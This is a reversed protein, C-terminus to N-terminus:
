WTSFSLRRSPPVERGPNARLGLHGPSGPHKLVHTHTRRPLWLTRVEAGGGSPFTARPSAELGAQPAASGLSGRGSTYFPIWDPWRPCPEARGAPGFRTPSAKEEGAGVCPAERGKWCTAGRSVLEVQQVVIPPALPARARVRASGPDGRLPLPPTRTGGERGRRGHSLRPAAARRGLWPRFTHPAGSPGPWVLCGGVESM